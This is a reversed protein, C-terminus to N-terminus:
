LSFWGYDVLKTRKLSVRFDHGLLPPPPYTSSSRVHLVHEGLINADEPPSSGTGLKITNQFAESWLQWSCCCCCCCGLLVMQISTILKSIVVKREEGNKKEWDEESLMCKKMFDQNHNNLLVMVLYCGITAHFFVFETEQYAHEDIDSFM